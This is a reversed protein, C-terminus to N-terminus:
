ILLKKFNAAVTEWRYKKMETKNNKEMRKTEFRGKATQLFTLKKALTNADETEILYGNKGDIVAEPLASNNAAICIKGRSMGEYVSLGFSKNHSMHIMGISHDILYYKDAISIRGAFIVNNTLKKEKILTQLEEFYSKDEIGGAIIYTFPNKMLSLARITTDINKIRHIRSVQIIYPKAKKVIDKTKQSIHETKMSLFAEDEVGLPIVHILRPSISNKILEEKEWNSIAIVSDATYNILRRGLVIHILQKIFRKTPSFTKWDPTFGGCPFYVTKFRKMGIMKLVAISCFIVLHPVLTFNTLCVADMQNNSLKPLFFGKITKYRKILINEKKDELPLINQESLTSASVHMTISYKKPDFHRLLQLLATEIGAHVPFFYRNVVHLRFHIM